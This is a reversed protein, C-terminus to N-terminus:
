RKTRKKHKSRKVRMKRRTEADKLILFGEIPKGDLLFQDNGKHSFHSSEKAPITYVMKRGTISADIDRNFQFMKCVKGGESKVALTYFAEADNDEADIVSAEVIPSVSYSFHVWDVNELEMVLKKEPFINKALSDNAFVIKQCDYETSIDVMLAEVKQGRATCLTQGSMQYMSNLLGFQLGECSYVSEKEGKSLLKLKGYIGMDEGDKQFIVNTQKKWRPNIIPDARKPLIVNVPIEHSEVFMVNKQALVDDAFLSALIIILLSQKM